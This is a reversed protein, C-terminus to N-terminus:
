IYAAPNKISYRGGAQAALHIVHTFQHARFLNQLSALDELKLQIFHYNANTKSQLLERYAISNKAIGAAELRAVKLSVDYYNNISDLGVVEHGDAVLRNALHSGIFGATGTILIKMTTQNKAV